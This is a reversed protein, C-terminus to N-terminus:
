ASLYCPHSGSWKNREFALLVADTEAIKIRRTFGAVVMGKSDRIIAGIGVEEKGMCALTDVNLKLSGCTPKKWRIQNDITASSVIPVKHKLCQQFDGLLRGMMEMVSRADIVHNSHVWTNRAWWIAWAMNVGEYCRTCGNLCKVGKRNLVVFCPLVGHFARWLFIKIKSPLKLSWLKGHWAKSVAVNSSGELRNAQMAVWYGSCVTYLGRSDYHWILNDLCNSRRLPISLIVESDM